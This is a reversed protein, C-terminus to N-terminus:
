GSVACDRVWCEAKVTEALTGTLTSEFFIDYTKSSEGFGGISYLIDSNYLVSYATVFKTSSRHLKKYYITGFIRGINPPVPVIRDTGNIDKVQGLVRHEYPLWASFRQM